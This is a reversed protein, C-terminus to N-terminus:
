EDGDEDSKSTMRAKNDAVMLNIDENSWYMNKLRARFYDEEIVGRRYMGELQGRTLAPPEEEMKLDNLEIFHDIASQAYKQSVMRETYEEKTIRRARYLSDLVARSTEKSEVALKSKILQLKLEAYTESVFSKDIIFRKYSEEASSFKKLTGDTGVWELPFIGERFLGDTLSKIDSYEWKVKLKDYSKVIWDVQSVEPAPLDYQVEYETRMDETIPFAGFGSDSLWFKFGDEDYAGSEAIANLMFWSIPRCSSRKLQWDWRPEWGFWRLFEKLTDDGIHGRGYWDIGYKLDPHFPRILSNIDYQIPLQIGAYKIPKIYADMLSKFGVTDYLFHSIRGFGMEKTPHILEALTTAVTFTLGLSIISGMTDKYKKLEEAGDPGLQPNIKNFLEELLDDTFDKFKTTIAPTGFSLTDDLMELIKEQIDEGIDGFGAYLEEVMGEFIGKPDPNEIQKRRWEYQARISPDEKTQEPFSNYLADIQELTTANALIKIGETNEVGFWKVKNM